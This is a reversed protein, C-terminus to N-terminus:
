PNQSSVQPPQSYRSCSTLSTFVPL